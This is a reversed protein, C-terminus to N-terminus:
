EAPPNFPYADPHNIKYLSCSLIDEYNSSRIDAFSCLKLGGDSLYRYFVIQNGFYYKLYTCTYLKGDISDSHEEKKAYEETKTLPDPCLENLAGDKSLVESETIVNSTHIWKQNGIDWGYVEFKGDDRHKYFNKPRRDWRFLSEWCVMYSDNLKTVTYDYYYKTTSGGNYDTRQYLIECGNPISSEMNFIEAQKTTFTLTNSKLNDITASLTFSGVEPNNPMVRWEYELYDDGEGQVKSITVDERSTSFKINSVKHEGLKTSPDFEFFFGMKRESWRVEPNIARLTFDNKSGCSALSGIMLLSSLFLVSKTKM